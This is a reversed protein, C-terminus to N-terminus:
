RFPELHTEKGLLMEVARHWLVDLVTFTGISGSSVHEKSTDMWTRARAPQSCLKLCCTPVPPYLFLTGPVRSHCCSLFPLDGPAWPRTSQYHLVGTHLVGELGAASCGGPSQRGGAGAGAQSSLSCPSPTVQCLSFYAQPPSAPPEM